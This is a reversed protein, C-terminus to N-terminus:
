KKNFVDFFIIEMAVGSDKEIQRMIVVNPSTEGNEWSSWAQQTVGYRKGMEAQSNTGRFEILKTRKM